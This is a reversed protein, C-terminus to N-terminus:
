FSNVLVSKVIIIFSLVCFKRKLFNLISCYSLAGFSNRHEFYSTTVYVLYLIKNIDM